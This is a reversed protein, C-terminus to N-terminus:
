ANSLTVNAFDVLQSFIFETPTEPAFNYCFLSRFHREYPKVALVTRLDM